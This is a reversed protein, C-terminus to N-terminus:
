FKTGGRRLLQWIVNSGIQCLLKRLGSFNGPLEALVGLLLDVGEGPQPDRIYGGAPM